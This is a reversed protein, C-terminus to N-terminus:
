NNTQALLDCKGFVLRDLGSLDQRLGVDSFGSQKFLATVADGQDFGIEVALWGGPAMHNCIDALITRYAELGDQGGSLALDPDFSKVGYDLATMAADDIYPPNSVIFDFRDDVSRTWDSKRFEIRNGLDHKRANQRATELAAESIDTALAQAKPRHALIAIPIAGSGTGLDLLKFPDSDKTRQLVFDVLMETEPRPSLVHKNVDFRLGYFEKFGFIHDLPEGDLRRNMIQLIERHHAASLLNQESVLQDARSLGTVHEIIWRTELAASEISSDRFAARLINYLAGVTLSDPM